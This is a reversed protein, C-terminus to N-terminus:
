QRLERMIRLGEEKNNELDVDFIWDWKHELREKLREPDIGVEPVCGTTLLGAEYSSEVLRQRRPRNISDYAHLAAKADAVTQVNEFLASILYADEMAMGGGSGQWPTMADAADGIVVIGDKVYTPALPRHHWLGFIMIPDASDAVLNLMGDVTPHWGKFHEGLEEKSITRVWDSPDTVSGEPVRFVMVCQSLTNDSMSDHLICANNGTWVFQRPSDPDMYEKGLYKQAKDFPVTMWVTWWGAFAPSAAPHDKGVVYKRIMSHIGDAGILIDCTFSSGDEFCLNIEDTQELHKLKKGTHMQKPSVDKLLEALFTPRHVVRTGEERVSLDFSKEGMDPGEGIMLRMSRIQVAGAVKLHEKLDLLTLARCANQNFGIAVGQERFTPASEFIDVQLRPNKTLGRFTAAGALGGGLIAIRIKNDSSAM